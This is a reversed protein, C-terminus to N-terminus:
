GGGKFGVLRGDEDTSHRQPRMIEGRQGGIIMVRDAQTDDPLIRRAGIEANTLAHQNTQFGARGAGTRGGAQEM